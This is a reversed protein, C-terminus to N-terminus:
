QPIETDANRWDEPSLVLTAAKELGELYTSLRSIEQRTISGFRGPRRELVTLQTRVEIIHEVLRNM